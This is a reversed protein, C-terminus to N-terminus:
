KDLGGVAEGVSGVDAGALTGFVADVVRESAHGDELACFRSVFQKYRDAFRATVDPLARLSAVVEDSTRLVPGPSEDQLDFYIGRPERRYHELDYAFYLIPKRTVAFDFAVSSYDTILVDAALYLEAIEDYHSVNVLDPHERVRAGAAVLSHARWLVKVSDSAEDAIRTLDLELSWPAGDRFTPAYLVAMADDAIELESRVRRRIAGSDPGLLIDNRPYGTELIRGDYRFAQRFVETSFPNPSVLYDWAEVNRRLLQLYKQSGPFAPHAIDFAIKKLPTGHWTQLFTTGRKKRYYGPMTNNTVVWRAQGLAQLYAVTGPRVARAGEPPETGHDLVWVQEVPADRRCLEDSIARPSDSHRGRWSEFLAVAPAVRRVATPVRRLGPVREACSTLGSWRSGGEPAAHPVAM